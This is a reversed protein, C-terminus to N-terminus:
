PQKRGLSDWRVRSENLMSCYFGPCGDGASTNGDDCQEGPDPESDGCVSAFADPSSLTATAVILFYVFILATKHTLDIRM